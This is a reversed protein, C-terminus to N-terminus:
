ERVDIDAGGPEFGPEVVKIGKGFGAVDVQCQQDEHEEAPEERESTSESARCEPEECEAEDDVGSSEPEADFDGSARGNGVEITGGDEDAPSHDDGGEADFEEDAVPDATEDTTGGTGSSDHDCVVECAIFAVGETHHLGNEIGGEPKGGVYDANGDAVSRGENGAEECDAIAANSGDVIDAAPTGERGEGALLM